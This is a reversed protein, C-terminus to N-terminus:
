SSTIPSPPDAPPTSDAPGPSGAASLRAAWWSRKKKALADFQPRDVLRDLIERAHEFTLIGLLSAEAPGIRYNVALAVVAGNVMGSGDFRQLIREDPDRYIGNAWDQALDWVAALSPLVAAPEWEGAANLILRQPLLERYPLPDAWAEGEPERFEIARPIQWLRGDALECPYGDLPQDRLLHEPLIVDDRFRGVFTEIGPAKTWEQQPPYYGVAAAHTRVDAVIVGPRGNPGNTVERAAVNARPEFAYGICSARLAAASLPKTDPLFYLFAV